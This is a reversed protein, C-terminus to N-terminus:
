FRWLCGLRLTRYSDQDDREHSLAIDFRVSDSADWDARLYFIRVQEREGGLLPDFKYLAYESGFSVEFADSLAQSLDFGVSHIEERDTDWLEGTLSLSTGEDPWGVLSPTLYYRRFERNFLGEDSPERLERFWVGGEITFHEGLTKSLLVRWEDYPNEQQLVPSFPDVETVLRRQTRLLTFYTVDARLGYDTSWYTARARLDRVNGEVATSRIGLEFPEALRQRAEFAFFGDEETTQLWDDRLRAYHLGAWTWEGPTIEVGGGYLWDGSPSSEYLHAPVGGFARLLVKWDTWETTEALAGDFFRLEALFPADQRGVRLREVPGLRHFTANARLLRGNIHRDYTDEIQAFSSARERSDLDWDYEGLFSFTVDHRAADGLELRLVQSLDQDTEDFTARARYRTRLDGTLTSLYSDEESPAAVTEPVDSAPDKETPDEESPTEAEAESPEEDQTAPLVPPAAIALVLCIWGLRLVRVALGAAGERRLSSERNRFFPTGPADAIQLHTNM